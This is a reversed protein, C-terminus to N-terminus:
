ILDDRSSFDRESQRTIMMPVEFRYELIDFILERM